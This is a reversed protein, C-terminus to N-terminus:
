YRWSTVSETKIHLQPLGSLICHSLISPILIISVRIQIQRILDPDAIVVSPDSGFYYGFVKGHEKIWQGIQPVNNDILALFNGTFFNGEPVPIGHRQLVTLRKKRYWIWYLIPVTFLLLLLATEVEIM